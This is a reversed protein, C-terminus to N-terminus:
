LSQIFAILSEEESLNLKKKLRVKRRKVSSDKINLYRAIEKTSFNLKLMACFNLDLQTLVPFQESLNLFFDKHILQFHTKM